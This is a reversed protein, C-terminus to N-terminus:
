SILKTLLLEKTLLLKQFYPKLWLDATIKRLISNAQRKKKTLGSKKQGKIQGHRLIKM